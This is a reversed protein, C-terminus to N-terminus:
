WIFWLLSSIFISRPFHHTISTVHAGGQRKLTNRITIKQLIFNVLRNLKIMTRKPILLMEVNCEADDTRITTTLETM